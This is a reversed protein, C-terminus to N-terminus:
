TALPLGPLKDEHIGHRIPNEGNVSRELVVEWLPFLHKTKRMILYIREDDRYTEYAEKGRHTLHTKGDDYYLVYLWEDVEHTWWMPEWLEYEREDIIQKALAIDEMKLKRLLSELQKTM